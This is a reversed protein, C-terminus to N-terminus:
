VIKNEIVAVFLEENKHEVIYKQYNGSEIAARYYTAQQSSNYLFFEQYLLSIKKMDDQIAKRIEIILVEM